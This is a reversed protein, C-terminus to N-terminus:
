GARRQPGAEGDRDRGVSGRANKISRKLKRVEKTAAVVLNGVALEDHAAERYPIGAEAAKYRLMQAAAAPAQGLVRRNFQAKTEVAAGWERSDGKGSATADKVSAPVIVTLDNAEAVIATTWEHLAERRRRMAKAELRAKCRKAEHYAPWDRAARLEAMQRQLDVVQDALGADLGPGVMRRGDVTAFCDVAGLRIVMPRSGNDRRPKMEVGVSLWWVGAKVRIDAHNWAVPEAPFEGMARIEGEIAKLRLRWHKPGRGDHILKCGSQFRHPLWNADRVRRFKPYGSSKGAGAKARAFFAQFAGCQAEAVRHATWVSLDAWEPFARRLQTIEATLDFFTLHSKEAPRWRGHKDAAGGGRHVVGAQGTISRYRTEQMELLANWLLAMMNCQNLLAAEQARTPYLKFTYRRPLGIRERKRRAM